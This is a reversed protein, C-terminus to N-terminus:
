GVRASDSPRVRRLGGLSTEHFVGDSLAVLCGGFGGGVLRAGLVGPVARLRARLADIGESSVEFDEALSRHSEDMLRGVGALDGLSLLRAAEDVRADESVVHRARSRLVPDRLAAVDSSAARGLPGLEAEAAACQARREEYRSEALVRREGSDLLWLEAGAPLAVHRWTDASFDLLTAMDARGTLIALQDLLGGVEGESSEARSCRRALELIPEDIGLALATAVLM